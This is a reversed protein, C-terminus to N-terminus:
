NTNRLRKVKKMSGGGKQLWGTQDNPPPSPLKWKCWDWRPDTQVSRKLHFIAHLRWTYIFYIFISSRQNFCPSSAGGSLNDEDRCCLRPHCLKFFLCRRMKNMHCRSLQPGSCHLSTGLIMSYIHLM